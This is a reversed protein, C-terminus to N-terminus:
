LNEIVGQRGFARTEKEKRILYQSYSLLIPIIVRDHFEGCLNFQDDGLRLCFGQFLRKGTGIGGAVADAFPRPLVLREPLVGQMFSRVRRGAGGKVEGRLHDNPAVGFDGVGIFQVLPNLARELRVARNGVVVAYKSPINVLTFDRNPRDSAAQTQREDATVILATKKGKLLAFAVKGKVAAIEEQQRGAVKGVRREHLRVANKANVEANDVQRRVAFAAGIRTIGDFGDASAGSTDACKQLAFSRLIGLTVQFAHAPARRVILAPQIVVDALLERLVRKGRSLCECHLVKLTDTLSAVAEVSLRSPLESVPCEKLKLLEYAVLCFPCANGHRENVRAVRGSGAVGAPMTSLLVSLALTNELTKRTAANGFGVFIRGQVDRCPAFYVARNICGSEPLTLAARKLPRDNVHTDLRLAM